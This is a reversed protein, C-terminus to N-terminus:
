AIRSEIEGNTRSLDDKAVSLKQVQQKLEAESAQVGRLQEELEVIQNENADLEATLQTNKEFTQDHQYKM